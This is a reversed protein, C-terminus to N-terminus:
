AAALNRRRWGYGLLGLSGLSLLTLSSPEPVGSVASAVEFSPGFIPGLPRVPNFESTPFQGVGLANVGGGLTVGPVSTTSAANLFAAAKNNYDVVIEYKTNALLTISTTLDHYRYKGDSALPDSATITASALNVTTGDQYIRVTNGPPIGTVELGLADLTLPNAGVTFSYGITDSGFFGTGGTFDVAPIFDARAQGVGGLLLALAALLLFM